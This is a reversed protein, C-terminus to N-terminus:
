PIGSTPAVIPELCTPSRRRASRRSSTASPRIPHRSKILRALDIPTGTVVVDCDAAHITEELRRAARGLLGDGAPGRRHAPVQRVDDRDLRGRLPRPDVLDGRGGARPSRAPASRCGATPSRRGTTSWWCASASCSPGTTSRRRLRALVVTPRRTSRRSTRAPGARRRAARRTDVKNVRRRRGHAPEDRGPPLPARAGAAAPRRRHDAPRARLVPLRQQRRGLSSTPRRRPRGSSRRTTSAPTCSWAWGVPAEYEEREEVTPHSADIDALTAFRQM